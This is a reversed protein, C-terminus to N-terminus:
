YEGQGAYDRHRYGPGPEESIDDDEKLASQGLRELKAALALRADDTWFSASYRHLTIDRLYAIEDYSLYQTM